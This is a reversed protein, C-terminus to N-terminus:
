CGGLLSELNQVRWCMARESVLLAQFACPKVGFGSGQKTPFLLSYLGQLLGKKGALGLNQVRQRERERERERAREREREREIHIYIQKCILKFEWERSVGTLLGRIRLGEKFM